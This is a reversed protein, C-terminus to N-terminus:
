IKCLIVSCMPLKHIVRCIYSREPANQVRIFYVLPFRSFTRRAIESVDNGITMSRERFAEVYVRLQDSGSTIKREAFKRLFDRSFSLSLPFFRPLPRSPDCVYWPKNGRAIGEGLFWQQYRRSSCRERFEVMTSFRNARSIAHIVLFHVQLALNARQLASYKIPM